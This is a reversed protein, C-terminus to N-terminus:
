SHQFLFALLIFIAGDSLILIISKKSDSSRNKSKTHNFIIRLLGILVCALGIIYLCAVIKDYNSMM